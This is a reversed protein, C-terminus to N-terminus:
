AQPCFILTSLLRAPDEDKTYAVARLNKADCQRWFRRGGIFDPGAAWVVGVADEIDQREIVLVLAVSEILKDCCKAPNM